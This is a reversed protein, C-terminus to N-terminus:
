HEGILTLILGREAETERSSPALNYNQGNALKIHFPHLDVAKQRFGITVGRNKKVERLEGMKATFAHSGTDPVFRVGNTSVYLKGTCQVTFTDSSHDHRVHFVAEGGRAVAAQGNQSAGNLDGLVYLQLEALGSYARPKNPDMRIGQRFLNQVQSYQRVSWAAKAQAMLSDYDGAPLNAQPGGPGSRPNPSPADPGPQAPPPNEPVRPKEPLSPNPPPTDPSPKDPTPNDPAPKDPNPKDPNPTEPGPTAPVDKNIVLDPPVPRHMLMAVVIAVLAVV